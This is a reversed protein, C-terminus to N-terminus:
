AHFEKNKLYRFLELLLWGILYIYVLWKFYLNESLDFFVGVYYMMLGWFSNWFLSSILLPKYIESYKYGTSGVRICTLAAFHPHWFSSFFQVWLKIIPRTLNTIETRNNKLRIGIYYNIHYAILAFGYIITFTLIGKVPDGATLAMATLIVLSGPFYVNLIGVNEILSLPGVIIVGYEIILHQIWDTIIWLSPIIGLWFLYESILLIALLISPARISRFLGKM